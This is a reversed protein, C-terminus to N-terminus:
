EFAQSKGSVRDLPIDDILLIDMLSGKPCYEMVVIVDPVEICGGIFRRVNPHDLERLFSICILLSKAVVHDGLEWKLIQGVKEPWMFSCFMLNLTIKYLAQLDVWQSASCLM